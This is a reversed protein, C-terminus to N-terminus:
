KVKSSYLKEWKKISVFVEKGKKDDWIWWGNAEKSLKRLYEVQYSNFLGRDDVKCKDIICDWLYFELDHMWGACWRYESIDQMLGLLKSRALLSKM